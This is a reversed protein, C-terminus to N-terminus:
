QQDDVTGSLDTSQHVKLMNAAKFNSLLTHYSWNALNYARFLIRSKKRALVICKLPSMDKGHGPILLQRPLAGGFSPLM